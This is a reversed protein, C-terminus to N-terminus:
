LGGSSEVESAGGGSAVEDARPPTLLARLLPHQRYRDVRHFSEIVEAETVVRSRGAGLEIELDGARAQGLVSTLADLESYDDFTIGVREFREAGLAHLAELYENGKDGLSLPSHDVITVLLRRDARSAELLRRLSAAASRKNETVVFAVHWRRKRGRVRRVVVVETHPGELHEVEVVAERTDIDRVQEVLAVAMGLLNGADAPLSGPMERRLRRMEDIKEAVRRDIAAPIEETTTVPNPSPHLRVRQSGTIWDALSDAALADRLGDGVERWRESAWTLVDRPRLELSGSEMSEFWAEGLPFLEDRARAALLEAPLGEIGAFLEDLRERLLSKAELRKIRHIVIPRSHNLRDAAAAHITGNEVLQLMDERVGSVVVCLNRGHDILAHLSRALASLQEGRMNDAQDVCLVFSRGSEQALRAIGLLVDNLRGESLECTAEDPRARQEIRRAEEADLLEGQLWRVALAARQAHDRRKEPSRSRVSKSAHFFFQFMVDFATEEGGLRRSLRRYVERFNDDSLRQINEEAAVKRIAMGIVRYLLTQHLGELRHAALRSVCCKLLYRDMDAPRTQINHLFVFCSDGQAARQSLRGLLHSKGTGASGLLLVGQAGDRSAEVTQVLREFANAHIAVVDSIVQSPDSIRNRAFPNRSLLEMVAAHDPSSVFDSPASELESTALEFSADDTLSASGAAPEIDNM